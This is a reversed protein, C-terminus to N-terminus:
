FPAFKPFVEGLSPFVEGISLPFIVGLSPFVESLSSIPLSLSGRSLPFMGDEYSVRGVILWYKWGEGFWVGLYSVKEVAEEQGGAL